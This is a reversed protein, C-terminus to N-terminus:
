VAEVEAEEEEEEEARSQSTRTGDISCTSATSRMSRVSFQTTWDLPLRAPEGVGGGRSEPEGAKVSVETGTRSDEAERLRLRESTGRGDGLAEGIRAAELGSPSRPILRSAGLPPMQLALGRGSARRDETDPGALGAGDCDGEMEPDPAKYGAEKPLLRELSTSSSPAPSRDDCRRRRLVLGPNPGRGEGAERGPSVPLGAGDCGGETEPDRTKPEVEDPQLRELSTSSSPAPSRDGCRRQVPLMKAASGAEAEPDRTRRGVEEPPLRELITSTARGDKRSTTNAVGSRGLKRSTTNAVGTVATAFGTTAGEPEATSAAPVVSRAPRTSKTAAGACGTARTTTAGTLMTSMSGATPGAAATATGTGATALGPGRGSRASTRRRARISASKADLRPRGRACLDAITLEGRM